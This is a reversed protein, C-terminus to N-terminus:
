RITGSTPSLGPTHCYSTFTPHELSVEKGEKGKEKSKKTGKGRKEDEISQILDAEAERAQREREEMRSDPIAAVGTGTRIADSLTNLQSSWDQYEAMMMDDMVLEELQPSAERAIKNYHALAGVADHVYNERMPM